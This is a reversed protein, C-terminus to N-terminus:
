HLDFVIEILILFDLGYGMKSSLVEFVLTLLAALSIVLPFHRFDKLLTPAMM